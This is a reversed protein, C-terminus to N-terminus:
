KYNMCPVPASIQLQINPLPVSVQVQINPVPASVHVQINSVEPVSVHLPLLYLYSVQYLAM